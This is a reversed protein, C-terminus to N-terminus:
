WEYRDLGEAAEGSAIRRLEDVVWRVVGPALERGRPLVGAEVLSRFEALKLDLLKAATPESALIPVTATSV